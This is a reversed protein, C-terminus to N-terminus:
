MKRGYLHRLHQSPGPKCRAKSWSNCPKLTRTELESFCRRVDGKLSDIELRLRSKSEPALDRSKAVNEEIKANREAGYRM